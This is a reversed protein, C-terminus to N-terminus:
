RRYSPYTQSNRAGNQLDLRQLENRLQRATVVTGEVTINYNVVSTAGGAGGAGGGRNGHVLAAGGGAMRLGLSGAAGGTLHSMAGSVDATGMALGQAIQRAINRGGIQPAGSGSLPGKKAPSWPLFNKIESVVSSMASGASGIMSEIGSILGSIINQGAGYLLSGVDGLAHLIKGPLSEVFRIGDGALSKVESWADSFAGSIQKWYHTIAYVALGIPGTLIALLLPWHGKIWNVVTGAASVISDFAKEIIHWADDAAGSILKWADKWFDRFGKFHDWCYIFAAVLGGIAIVILGIPNADMAIDLEGTAVAEEDAAGTALVEADKLGSLAQKMNLIGQWATRAGGALTSWGTKFLGGLNQFLGEVAPTINGEEDEVAEAGFIAAWGARAGQVLSAWGTKMSGLMKPFFGEVAPIVNGEADEAEAAGFVAKWGATVGKVLGSFGTKFVKGIKPFLGEVAPVVNGEADTVEAAGFLKGWGTKIGAFGSKFIRSMKPFFGEVAAVTKGEADKTAAAGFLAGWMSKTSAILQKGQSFPFTAISKALGAIATIPKIVALAGLRLALPALFADVLWQMITKHQDTFNALDKLAPTVTTSLISGLASLAGLVATGVLTALSPGVTKILVSAFHTAADAFHSLDDAVTKFVQGVKQWPSLAPATATAAAGAGAQLHGEGAAAPASTPTSGSFGSAIGSLATAFGHVIPTGKSEILSIFSSVQPILGEGIRIMVSEFGDKIQAFQVSLTHTSTVWASAFSNAGAAIAPYKSKLRDMQDALINLGSGAKKGFVETIVQGQEKATVGAARMHAMLDNMAPLLGGNQMDKGLQTSTLGLKQLEPGATAIPQALAQVSMRLMTAANAGRVNNDGFVDLAAGVDALSLGFGKVTAVMGSGFADALDQMQMDGAGVIANLAGMAQGMNQVGPIGSAVAATLANTVDVLDAHGTTAGEAAVKVLNLAKAGSIGMSSFNSEVHYLAEALSDPSQGVQGALSLVGDGLSKIKSLPVGAQTSIQTMAAQFKAASKISEYGIAAISLPLAAKLMGGLEGLGLVKTSLGETAESAEASAATVSGAMETAAAKVEAAAESIAAAAERMSAVIEEGMESMGVGASRAEDGMAALGESASTTSERVSAAMEAVGDDIGAFAADVSEALSACSEKLTDISAVANRIMKMFGAASGTLTARLPPIDAM